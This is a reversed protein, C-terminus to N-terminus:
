EVSRYELEYGLNNLLKQYGAGCMFEFEEESILEYFERVDYKETLDNFAMKKFEEVTYQKHEYLIFLVNWTYWDYIEYWSSSDKEFSYPYTFEKAYVKKLNKNLLGRERLDSIMRSAVRIDRVGAM